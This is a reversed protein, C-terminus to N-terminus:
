SHLGYESSHFKSFQPTFYQDRVGSSSFHISSFRPFCYLIIIKYIYNIQKFSENQHKKNISCHRNINILCYIYM